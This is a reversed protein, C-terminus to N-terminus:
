CQLCLHRAPRACATDGLVRARHSSLRSLVLVAPPHLQWSGRRELLLALRRGRVCIYGLSICAARRKMGSPMCRARAEMHLARTLRAAGCRVPAGHMSKRRWVRGPSAVSAVARATPASGGARQRGCAAVRIAAGRGCVTLTPTQHSRRHQSSSAERNLGRPPLCRYKQKFREHRSVPKEGRVVFQLLLLILSHRHYVVFRKARRAAGPRVRCVRVRIGALTRNPVLTLCFRYVIRIRCVFLCVSM